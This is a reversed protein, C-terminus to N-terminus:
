DIQDFWTYEIGNMRLVFETEALSALYPSTSSRDVVAKIKAIGAAALQKACEPCPMLPYVYATCDIVRGPANYLANAEAHVTLKYKTPRDNLWEPKDEITPPFGNYGLSVVHIDRTIVAGVKTSPDKSWTSVERALKLFRLDWKAPDHM